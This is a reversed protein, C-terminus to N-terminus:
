YLYPELKRRSKAEISDFDTIRDHMRKYRFRIMENKELVDEEVDDASEANGHVNQDIGIENALDLNFEVGCENAIAPLHLMSNTSCGLAMDVTLANM